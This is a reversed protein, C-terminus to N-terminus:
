DIYNKRILTDIKRELDAIYSAAGLVEKLKPNFSHKEYEECKQQMILAAKKLEDMSSNEEAGLEDITNILAANLALLKFILLRQKKPPHHKM